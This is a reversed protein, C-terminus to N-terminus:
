QEEEGSVKIRVIFRAAPASSLELIYDMLLEGGEHYDIGGSLSRTTVSMPISGFPLEYSCDVRKNGALFTLSTFADGGRDMIVSSLDPMISLTVTGSMERTEEDYNQYRVIIRGREDREITGEASVDVKEDADQTDGGQSATLDRNESSVRVRCNRIVKYEEEPLDM